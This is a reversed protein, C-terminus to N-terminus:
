RVTITVSGSVSIKANTADTGVVSFTYTGATTAPTGPQPSQTQGGGGSGCGIAAFSLIVCFLGLHSMWRRRKAPRWLLLFAAFATGGTHIWRLNQDFPRTLAANSAAKTHITLTSIGNGGATLTVSAPSLACTPLSQAGSPSSILTCTLNMTGSYTSGASLTANGTTSGGAALTVPSPVAILVPVVTIDIHASAVGYMADGSYNVILSGPGAALTGAPIGLTAAGSALPQQTTFTGYAISVYGTPTPQGSGGAVSVMVSVEEKDTITSASPTASITATATGSAPTVTLVASQTATTYSGSSTADPAYSATLTITGPPLIGAALSFTASGSALPQVSNYSGGKLTVTGTPIASGSAGAVAVAVTLAQATTISTSSPTVTMGPTQPLDITYIATTVASQTYGIATGIAKLTKTTSVAIPGSYVNSAVTPTTGDLTYYITAGPIADTVTVTQASAYTGTPVSFVPAPAVGPVAVKRIRYNNTDAIYLSGAADFAIGNPPGIGAVTPSGGDGSFSPYGNGVVRTIIGTNKDVKRVVGLADSLFLNDASDFAIYSPNIEASTAPGGDGSTGYRNGNGAVTTIIGTAATIKRIRGDYGAVIYVNDASDIALGSILTFKASTAPGGDGSSETGSGSGAITTIIGSSASVKRVRQHAYDSIYLNGATDFAVSNPYSLFASTAPGGDGIDISCCFSGPFGAVTSILGTKADAKRILNNKADAIYLNGAADLALGDPFNLEASNAPGGDGQYGSTGNGAIVSAIGTKASVMWVVSNWSDSFFINGASDVVLGRLEGFQASTAPGGAGIFGKAGSGAVTTIVTAPPSTITYAAIVPDSTLYGPAVAIAKITVSSSVDVPGNYAYMGTNPLSGDLTLYVVAGPTSDTITVMQPGPYTGASISFTPAATQTTPPIGSVTVKRVRNGDTDAVYLNGSTDFLLGMPYCIAASTAAGGDGGFGICGTDGTGVATTIIGTSATVKRVRNNQFDAIFLNGASDVKMDAPYHLKASTAPGGDGSYGGDGTGAGYGNGAVTTIVGTAATVKRIVNNNFDAILLNGSGDFSIGRPTNLEAATAPGGDGTYGVSQKGAVTTIIKTSASVKRIVNADSDSIYLNNSSDIAINWPRALVASTALGGDGSYGYTGTGAVTTVIHTTAAIERIVSNGLDAIFLNGASDFALGNPENFYASTAPGNDGSYGATGKGAFTTIVGTGAAIKRIVNNNYDAVYLNGAADRAVSMPYNLNALTASGGDGSYGGSGNGAITYILSTPSSSIVFQAGAPVSPSYGYAVAIAVLTESTSVTIPGTYKTSSISPSSGNTTYYITAGPASITVMQTGAYTGSPISIVPPPTAPLSLTITAYAYSSMDYGNATAYASIYTYGQGSLTIPGTYPVWDPTQTSGFASYFIAAGPTSDTISVTQVTTYTGSAPTIVPTAVRVELPVSDSVSSSFTSDGSYKAVVQHPAPGLPSISSVSATVVQSPQSLQIAVYGDVSPAALDPIGDGNFDAAAINGSNQSTATAFNMVAAFTGDGNGTLIAIAGSQTKGVALDAVGDANLDAITLSGPSYGGASNALGPKFSGDGNGLLITVDNVSYDHANSTALDLIGDGNFDGM